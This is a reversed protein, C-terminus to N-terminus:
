STLPSQQTLAPAFQLRRSRQYLFLPLGLSPGVLVTALVCLWRQRVPVNATRGEWVMWILLAIATMIVDLWATLSAPSSIAQQIFGTLDFSHTVLFTIAPSLPLVAGLLCLMLYIM